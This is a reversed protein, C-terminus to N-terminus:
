EVFTFLVQGHNTTSYCPRRLGRLRRNALMKTVCSRDRGLKAAIEVNKRGMESLRQAGVVREELSLDSRVMNEEMQRLLRDAEDDTEAGDLIMTLIKKHGAMKAARWRREGTLIQYLGDKRKWVVIPQSVGNAKEISRKLSELEKEGFHKRPQDPDPNVSDIPLLELKPVQQNKSKKKAPKKAKKAENRPAYKGNPPKKAPKKKAPKKQAPKETDVPM